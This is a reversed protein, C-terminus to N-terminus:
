SGFSHPEIYFGFGEIWSGGDLIAQRDTDNFFSFLPTLQLWSLRHYLRGTPISPNTKRHHTRCFAIGQYYGHRIAEGNFSPLQHTKKSCFNDKCRSRLFAEPHVLFCHFECFSVSPEQCVLKFGLVVSVNMFVCRGTLDHSIKSPLTQVIPDSSIASTSRDSTNSPYQTPFTWFRLDDETFWGVSLNNTTSM